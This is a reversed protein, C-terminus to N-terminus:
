MISAKLKLVPQQNDARVVVANVKENDAITLNIVVRLGEQPILASVFKCEKIAKFTVNASLIDGICEKIITLTCVGPVVPQQPFHGEYITHNTFLEVEVRYSDEIKDIAVVKYFDGELRM